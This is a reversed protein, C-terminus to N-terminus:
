TVPHPDRTGIPRSRTARSLAAVIRVHQEGRHRGNAPSPHPAALVMRLVPNEHLTFYRMVGTLAPQGLTVIRELRPLASLLDHLAARAGDLEAVKSAVPDTDIWPIINWRLYDQRALGAEIRARRFSRSSPNANDESSVADDGRAVTDVAPRELLVLVRADTRGSNPDFSPVFRGPAAGRWATVLHDLRDTM